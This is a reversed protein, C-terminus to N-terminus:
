HLGGDDEEDDPGDLELKTDVVLATGCVADAFGYRYLKTAEANFNKHKLKGEEDVVMYRGDHTHIIEIYGGVMTQLETLTWHPGSPRVAEIRGDTYYLTSSM